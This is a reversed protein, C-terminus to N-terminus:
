ELSKYLITGGLVFLFLGIIIQLFTMLPNMLLMAGAIMIGTGIFIGLVKGIVLLM